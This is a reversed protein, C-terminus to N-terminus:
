CAPNPFLDSDDEGERPALCEFDKEVLITLTEDGGIAQEGRISVEDPALWREVAAQPLWVCLEGDGYEVRPAGDPEVRVKYTLQATSSFRVRDEAAGAEAIQRLESQTVRIRVSNGRIRLKM